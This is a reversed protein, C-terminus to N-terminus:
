LGVAKGVAAQAAAISARSPRLPVGSEDVCECLLAKLAELLDPAASMLHANVIAKTKGERSWAEGLMEVNCTEILGPQDINTHWPGPTHQGNM